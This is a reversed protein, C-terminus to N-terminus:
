DKERSKIRWVMHRKKPIEVLAETGGCYEFPLDLEDLDVLSIPVM